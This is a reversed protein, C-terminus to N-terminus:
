QRDQVRVPLGLREAAYNLYKSGEGVAVGAALGAGTVIWATVEAPSEYVGVARLLAAIGTVIFTAVVKRSVPVNAIPLM